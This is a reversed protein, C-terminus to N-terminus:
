CIYKKSKRKKIKVKKINGAELIGLYKYTQKERLTKIKVHNQMEIETMQPKGRKMILMTCKEIGFEM